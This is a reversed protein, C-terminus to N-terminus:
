NVNNIEERKTQVHRFRRHVLRLAKGFTKMGQKISMVAVEVFIPVSKRITLAALIAPVSIIISILRPHLELAM